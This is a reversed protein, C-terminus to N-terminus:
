CICCEVGPKYNRADNYYQGKAIIVVKTTSQFNASHNAERNPTYAMTSTSTILMIILSIKLMINLM